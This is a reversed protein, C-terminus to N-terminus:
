ADLSWDVDNRYQTLHQTWIEIIAPESNNIATNIMRKNHQPNHM